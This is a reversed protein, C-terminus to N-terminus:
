FIPFGTLDEPKKLHPGAQVDGGAPASGGGGLEKEKAIMAKVGNYMDQVLDVESRGLRRKNSIDYIHDASESHEGHIGRIQVHFQDAIAEFEPMRAGLEPLKIHVSARLATGLNTPCSTIYGLHSDHAFRAVSEIKSAARSLREFVQKIDAGQQMSIIRLQDEENVWVLFTKSLNHFIGRGHPGNRNLGCAELFRDGEKFLFHDAIIQNRQEDTVGPGLPFDALNRGVRIRTSKVLAAEEETFPPCELESANMNSVHKDNPGHKHYDLIVKDFFDKFTTYSDASGAYCGIGSDVNQCGSFLCTKFSVGAADSKNSYKDWIKKDLFRAVSSQQSGEPFQPLHVLDEPTKLHSGCMTRQTTESVGKSANCGMREPHKQTLSKIIGM